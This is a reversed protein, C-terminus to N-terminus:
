FVTATTPTAQIFSAVQRFTTRLLADLDSAVREVVAADVTTVYSRSRERQMTGNPTRWIGEVDGRRTIGGALDVVHHEFAAFLSDPFPVGENDALPVLLDLSVTPRLTTTPMPAHPFPAASTRSSSRGKTWSLPFAHLLRDVARLQTRRRDCPPVTRWGCRHQRATGNTGTMATTKEVFLSHDSTRARCCVATTSFELMPSLHTV